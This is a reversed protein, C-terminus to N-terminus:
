ECEGKAIEERLKAVNQRISGEKAYVGSSGSVFWDAGAERLRAATAFGVNGDVAITMDEREVRDSLFRLNEVKQVMPEILKAGAFGPNVTMVLVGDILDYLENVVSVTTAPNLAVFAKAGGDKIMTLAKYLHPTSEAHVTVVDGEGFAFLDLKQEPNQVMLHLDLPLIDAQKVAKVLDTGFGFNPVFIGDMVDIHM